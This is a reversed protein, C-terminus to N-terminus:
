VGAAALAGVQAAGLRVGASVVVDGSEVDRGRPRVHMGAALVDRVEISNDMEVVIEIPAIADAGDPVVGGTSIAMAEGARIPAEAPKGAAIHAVVGLTGPTDAARVAYGDMASSPFPPLDVAALAPEATVRGCVAAIPVIEAELRAALALVRAQAEEVTLLAGVIPGYRLWIASLSM